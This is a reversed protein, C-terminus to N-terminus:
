QNRRSAKENRKRISRRLFFMMICLFAIVFYVWSMWSIDPNEKLQRIGVYATFVAMLLWLIEIILFVLRSTKKQM